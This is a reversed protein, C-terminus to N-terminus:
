ELLPRISERLGIKDVENKTEFFPPPDYIETQGTIPFLAREPKTCELLPPCKYDTAHSILRENSLCSTKRARDEAL